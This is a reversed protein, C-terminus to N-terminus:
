SSTKLASDSARLSAPEVEEVELPCFAKQELLLKTKHARACVCVCVCVIEDNHSTESRCVASLEDCGCSLTVRMLEESTYKKARERTKKLAEGGRNIQRGDMRGEKRGEREERRETEERGESQM